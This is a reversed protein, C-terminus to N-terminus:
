RREDDDDDGWGGDVSGTSDPVSGDSLLPDYEHAMHDPTARFSKDPSVFHLNSVHSTYLCAFREVQHAFRSNQYGTKLLRGWVAHFREHHARLLARHKARVADRQAKLNAILAPYDEEEAAPPPTSDGADGQHHEGGGGGGGGGLGAAGEGHAVAWELRQIQDELADRAGRLTRLEAMAGGSRSLIDLEAELEPVVLMTRWGLSKKSRLIDGYIHDGVYLVETGAAVGLMRHLDLYTGGQFVRARRAGPGHLPPPPTTTTSPSAGDKGDGCVDQPATSAMAPRPLDADGIPVMPSGGDTNALLGTVPDVEFLPRKETFFAPKGCGTIVVDFYSLWDTTKDHGTRGGLLYNMVVHTYDWLSNTALFLRRGSARLTDLLPGLRRDEHIYTAPSAAVASKLSGDRHCLDVAARV